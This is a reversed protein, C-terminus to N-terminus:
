IRTRNVRKVSFRLGNTKVDRRVSISEEFIGEDNRSGWKPIGEGDVLVRFSCVIM